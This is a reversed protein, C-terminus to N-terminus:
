FGAGLWTYHRHLGKESMQDIMKEPDCPPGAKVQERTVNLMIERRPWDIAEVALPSLLVEEGSWWERTDVILYRFDWSGDDIYFNEVHGIPGDSAELLYGTVEAISRLHRDGDPRNAPDARPGGSALPAGFYPASSLPSAMAGPIFYSTGWYPDWGYYEYVQSEAQRSVPEHASLEPSAEIQSKTLAVRIEDREYDLKAIASPPIVVIRGMLWSGTDIVLWRIKWTADDFLLDKVTGLPGDTAEIAYRKLASVPLLM